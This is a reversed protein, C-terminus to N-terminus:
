PMVWIVPNSTAVINQGAGDLLVTVSELPIGTLIQALFSPVTLTSQARGLGDLTGATNPALPGGSLGDAVTTIGDINLPVLPWPNPGLLGPQTGSISFLQWYTEGARGTGFDMTATAAVDGNPQSAVAVSMGAAFVWTSAIGCQGSAYSVLLQGRGDGTTDDISALKAGGSCGATLEEQLTGNQRITDVFSSFANDGRSALIEDEGDGDLDHGRAVAAGYGVTAAVGGREFVQVGSLEHLWVVGTNNAGIDASSLGIALRHGGAVKPILAYQAAVHSGAPKDRFLVPTSAGLVPAPIRYTRGLGDGVFVAMQSTTGVMTKGFTSFFLPGIAEGFEVGTAGNLFAARGRGSGGVDAGPEGTVLDPIGDGTLDPTAALCKGRERGIVAGDAIWLVTGDSGSYMTVRGANGFAFDHSPSGVALDPVGDGNVDGISLMSEGMMASSQDGVMTRIRTGRRGSEVYVVGTIPFAGFPVAAGPAVVAYDEFGDGDVDGMGVANTGYGGSSFASPNNTTSFNFPRGQGVSIAALLGICILIRTM